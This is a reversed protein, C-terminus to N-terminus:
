ATVRAVVQVSQIAVVRGIFSYVPAVNEVRIPAVLVAPPPAAGGQGPPQAQVPPSLAAFVIVVAPVLLGARSM